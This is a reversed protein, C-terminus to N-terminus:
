YTTKIKIEKPDPYYKDLCDFRADDSGLKMCEYVTPKKLSKFALFIIFLIGLAVLIQKLNQKNINLSINDTKM